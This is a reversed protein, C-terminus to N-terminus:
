NKSKKGPEQKEATKEKRKKEGAEINIPMCPM